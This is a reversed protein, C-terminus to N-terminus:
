GWIRQVQVKQCTPNQPKANKGIVWALTTYTYSYYTQCVFWQKFKTEKSVPPDVTDDRFSLVYMEDNKDFYVENYQDPNPYIIPVAVNSTFDPVLSMASPVTMNDGFVADYSLVGPVDAAKPNTNSASTNFYFHVGYALPDSISPGRCFGEIAAGEHCASLVTGNLTENHHSIVM